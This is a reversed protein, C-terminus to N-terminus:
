HKCLSQKTVRIYVFFSIMWILQAFINDGQPLPGLAPSPFGVTSARNIFEKQLYFLHIENLM